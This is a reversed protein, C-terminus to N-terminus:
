DITIVNKEPDKFQKIIREFDNIQYRSKLTKLCTEMNGNGTFGIYPAEDTFYCTEPSFSSGIIKDYFTRYNPDYVQVLGTTDYAKLKNEKKDYIISRNITGGAASKMTIDSLVIDDDKIESNKYKGDKNTMDYVSDQANKEVKEAIDTYVQKMNNYNVEYDDTLIIDSIIINADGKKIFSLAYGNIYAIQEFAVAIGSLNSVIVSNHMAYVNTYNIAYNNIAETTKLKLDRSLNDFNQQMSNAADSITTLDVEKAFTDSIKNLKSQEFNETFIDQANSKNIFM